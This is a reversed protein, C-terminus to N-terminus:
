SKFKPLHDATLASNYNFSGYKTVNDVNWGTLDQNFSQANYFMANMSKVKSTDFNSVPQNFARTYKFMYSMDTVNSTDFNSVPQNFAHAWAFMSSMDTVNRTDWHSISEAQELTSDSEFMGYYSVGNVSSTVSQGDLYPMSVLSSMEYFMSDGDVIVIHGHLDIETIAERNGGVVANVM